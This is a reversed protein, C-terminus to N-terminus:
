RRKLHIELVESDPRDRITLEFKDKNRNYWASTTSPHKGIQKGIETCNPIWNKPDLFAELMTKKEVM